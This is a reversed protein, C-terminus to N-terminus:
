LWRTLGLPRFGTSIATSGASLLVNRNAEAHLETRNTAQKKRSRQEEHQCPAFFQFYRMVTGGARNARENRWRPVAASTRPVAVVDGPAGLDDNAHGLLFSVEIFAFMQGALSDNGGTSASKRGRYATIPHHGFIAIVDGARKAIVNIRVIIHHLRVDVNPFIGLRRSRMEVTSSHGITHMEISTVRHVFAVDWRISRGVAADAERFSHSPM